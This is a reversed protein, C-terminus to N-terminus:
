GNGEITVTFACIAQNGSPDVAQCTVETKGIEFQSGSEIICTITPSLGSNDTAQPENWTVVATPQGSAPAASKNDPCFTM